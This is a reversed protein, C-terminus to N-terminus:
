ATGPLNFGSLKNPVFSYQFLERQEPGFQIWEVQQDVRGPVNFISVVCATGPWNFGSLKNPVFSYQFLERQEPCISDM